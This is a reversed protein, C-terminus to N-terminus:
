APVARRPLSNTSRSAGPPFVESTLARRRGRRASLFRDFHLLVWGEVLFGRGLARKISLYDTIAAGLWSRFTSSM